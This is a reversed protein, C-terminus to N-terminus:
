RERVTVAAPRGTSSVRRSNSMTANRDFCGPWTNSRSADVLAHATPFVLTIRLHHGLVDPADALLQGCRAGFRGPPFPIPCPTGIARTLPASRKSAKRARQCWADSLVENMTYMSPNRSSANTIDM